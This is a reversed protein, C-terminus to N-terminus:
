SGVFRLYCKKVLHAALGYTCVVAILWLAYSAPLAALRLPGALPTLPLLPGLAAAGAAAAVVGRLILVVLLEVRASVSMILFRM